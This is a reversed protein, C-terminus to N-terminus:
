ESIVEDKRYDRPSRKGLMAWYRAPSIGTGPRKITLNNEGFVEGRAIDQAAVLSKRAVKINALESAMPKKEGDGLAAEVTRISRVMQTLEQLELSAKHDPGDLTRDLTFHKEIIRAGLAVAAIPIAFGESHDSYGVRVDFADRMTQMASLNIDTPPAPYETTCHLLSVKQKLLSRNEPSNYADSFAMASPTVSDEGSLGFAIVGLAFKVEELTAMGTSVILNRGSRAYELLLPANTIEGSPLKLTQQELENVLFGLSERDFASSLFEIGVEQCHRILLHHSEQSLELRKLMAFQSEYDSTLRKQYEAKDASATVMKEARFTQFKVADAGAAAAADILKFAMELSGNHNVGAEAIVYVRKDDSQM